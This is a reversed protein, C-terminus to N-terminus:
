SGYVNFGIATSFKYAIYKIYMLNIWDDEDLKQILILNSEFHAKFELINNQLNKLKKNINLPEWLIGDLNLKNNIIISM